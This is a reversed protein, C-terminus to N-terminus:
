LLFSYLTILLVCTRYLLCKQLLVLSRLLNGLMKLCKVTSIAKKAYFNIHKQFNLKRDFIFRWTEKPCLIHEGLSTLDLFLSNFVAYSRSFHFVEMKRYKIVLGFQELLSSMINYSCFLYSNSINFFKDQSIFLGDEM